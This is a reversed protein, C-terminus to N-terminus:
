QKEELVAKGLRVRTQPAGVFRGLERVTVQLAEDVTTTQRIKQSIAGLLVEREAEHQTQAFSRANNIAVAVQGAISRLLDLDAQTLGGVTNQQVDLVGLVRDGVEIPVAAESRTDPLLPNPLWNPDASTDTVLIPTHAEAARGVLGRGRAIQHGRALLVRGAEGTGGVLILNEGSEDYLYIHTHYYNFASQVQEVVQTVLEQPDLITSLRRSVETSTEIARTREAVRRELSSVLDSVQDTMANFTRALVGIEDRPLNQDGSESFARVALNGGSIQEAVKTLHIIPAGLRTSVVYGILAMLGILVYVVMVSIRLQAQVPSFAEATTQMGLVSWNMITIEVSYEQSRVSSLSLLSPQNNFPRQLYDHTGLEGMIQSLKGDVPIAKAQSYLYAPEGPVVLYFEGTEGFKATNITDFIAKANYTTRLVGVVERDFTRVPVAMNVAYTRSSEDFEPSGIYTSGAGDYYTKQWWLEDAQNYDSTRNTTGIIGGYRDTIFVEVHNPFLKQFSVLDNSIPSNLRSAILPDATDAAAIWETDLDKILAENEAKTGTYTNNADVVAQIFAQNISLSYLMSIQRYIEDGLILGQSNADYKLRGGILSQLRSQSVFFTILTLLVAVTVTIGMFSTILKGTLAFNRFQSILAVATIFLMGGMIAYAAGTSVTHLRWPMSLSTIQDVGFVGYCIAAGFVLAWIRDRGTLVQVIVLATILIVCLSLIVGLGQYVLGTFGLNWWSTALLIWAGLRIRKRLFLVLAGINLLAVVGNSVIVALLQWSPDVLYNPVTPAFALLSTFAFALPMWVIKRVKPDLRDLRFFRLSLKNLM